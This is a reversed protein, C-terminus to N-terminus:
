GMFGLRGAAAIAFQDTMGAIYDAARRALPDERRTYESDDLADPHALFHAWLFEILRRARAAEALREEWLYVNEFLYDRLEDTAAAVGASMAIGPAGAGGRGTMAADWSADVIDSVLTDIRQSHTAGLVRMADAPLDAPDLVGARVADAIDHNLYAVSDSLRVIQGELTSALPAGWEEASWSREALEEFIGERPKSHKLIGERVEWTLNLGDGGAELLDVIRVSQENHRFGAPLLDGLAQEGAHGFPTHGLDHGLAIAEALDENLNLARAITRAVQAVELTHTLRTVYHDGLPAIFVQTKHKLRRFAKSHIIRDRDRQYETRMDSPAEHRARGRSGVVRAAGPAFAEERQEIRARVSEHHRPTDSASM